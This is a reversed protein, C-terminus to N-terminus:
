LSNIGRIELHRQDLEATRLVRLDRGLRLISSPNSCTIPPPPNTPTAQITNTQPFVKKQVKTRPDTIFLTVSRVQFYPIFDM